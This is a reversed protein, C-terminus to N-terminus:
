PSVKKVTWGGGGQPTPITQAPAITDPNDNIGLRAQAEFKRVGQQVMTNFEDLAVNFDEPSQAQEMRAYAAEARSSEYDTIQGQGKLFVRANLFAGGKLQDIKSQVRNSRATWNPMYQAAKGLVVPLDPDAKLDKIQTDIEGAMQRAQPLMTLADGATDGISKGRAADFAKGEPGLPEVGHLDVESFSGDDGLVGIGYTGDKKRYYQPTLSHNVDGGAPAMPDSLWTGKTKNYLRGKGASIIDDGKMVDALLVQNQALAMAEEPTSALGKKMLYEATQNRIKGQAIIPAAMGFGAAPNGGMIGAGLATLAGPNADRFSAARGMFGLGQQPHAGLGQSQPYSNFLGPM